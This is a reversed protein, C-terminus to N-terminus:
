RISTRYKFGVYPISIQGKTASNDYTLETTLYKDRMREKFERTSDHNSSDFIDINSTGNATVINRPIALSYGREKREINDNLTLTGLETYQYDNWFKASDFINTNQIIDNLKSTSFFILNDYTKTKIYDDNNTITIISSNYSTDNDFSGYTESGLYLGYLSDDSDITYFTYSDVDSIYDPSFTYEGIFNNTFTNFVLVTNSDLKFYTEDNLSSGVVFPINNLTLANIYSNFGKSNSLLEIGDAVKIIAKKDKDFFFIGGKNSDISKKHQCGYFENIYDYRELIDGTGLSLQGANGDSILSRQNVSLVGFADDQFFYLNNNYKTLSKIPGYKSEVDLFNDVRFKTWSDIYEDNFKKDSYMVRSDFESRLDLDSDTFSYALNQEQSYVSNYQYLDETQQLSYSGDEYLGATEHTLFSSETEFTKALNSEEGRLSLNITSEVPFIVNVSSRYEEYITDYDAESEYQSYLYDFYTVFTDGNKIYCIDSSVVDSCEIYESNNRSLYDYGGYRQYNNRKIYAYGISEYDSFLTSYSIGSDTQLIIRRGPLSLNIGLHGDSYWTTQIFAGSVGSVVGDVAASFAYEKYDDTLNTSEFFKSNEITYRYSSETSPFLQLGRYKIATHYSATSSSPDGFGPYDRSGETYPTAPDYIKGVIDFYDGDKIPNEKYIVSEPSIFSLIQNNYTSSLPIDDNATPFSLLHTSSTTDYSLSYLGAAVVSKDNSTRIARVIQWSVAGAPLGNKLEFNITKPIVRVTSSSTDVIDIINAAVSENPGPFKIDAIWKVTSKNGKDDYFVIGFRYVEDRQWIKSTYSKIPNTYDDSGDYTRSTTTTSDLLPYNSSTLTDIIYKIEPGEGGLNGDTNYMYQYSTNRDNDVDNFPNICNAKEDIAPWADPDSPDFSTHNITYEATTYEGYEAYLKSVSSSNFRYARADFDEFEIDFTNEVINGAFLYNNKENIDYATIDVGSIIAFEEATVEGLGDQGVDYLYTSTISFDGVIIIEPIQGYDKYHIRYLRIKDFYSIDDSDLTISLKVGKGTTVSDTDGKVNASTSVNFSDDFIPVPSNTLSSITTEQLNEKLLSYAYQVVGTELSGSIISDVSLTEASTRTTLLNFRDQDLYSGTLLGDDTLYNAINAVRIPKTSNAWYVKINDSDEYRGVVSLYEPLISASSGPTDTYLNSGTWLLVANTFSTDDLEFRWIKDMRLSASNWNTTFIIIYDRIRVDGIIIDGDLLTSSLLGSSEVSHLTGTNSYKDALYRLNKASIYSNKTRVSVDIDPIMGESFNNISLESM